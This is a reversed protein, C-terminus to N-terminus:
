FFRNWNEVLVLSIFKIKGFGHKIRMMKLKWLVFQIMKSGGHPVLLIRTM